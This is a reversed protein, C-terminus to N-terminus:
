SAPPAPPQSQAARRENSRLVLGVILLVIAGVFCLAGLVTLVPNATVGGAGAFVIWGLALVACTILATRAGSPTKQRDNM